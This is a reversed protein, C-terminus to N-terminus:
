KKLLKAFNMLLQAIEARTAGSQPALASASRGSVLGSAIAWRMADQAWTSIQAGDAYANLDAAATIDLGCHIAYRYLIAALQERTIHANPAFLADGVGDVIGNEAAWAVAGAYWAGNALDTFSHTKEADPTGALRHLVTVLMARTAPANPAFTNASVGGMIGNEAVYDVAEQYWSSSRM